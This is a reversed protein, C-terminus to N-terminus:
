QVKYLEEMENEKSTKKEKAETLFSKLMGKADREVSNKDEHRLNSNTREKLQQSFEDVASAASMRSDNVADTDLSDLHM